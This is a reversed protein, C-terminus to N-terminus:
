TLIYLKKPLQLFFIILERGFGEFDLIKYFSIYIWATVSFTKGSCRFKETLQPNKETKWIARVQFSSLRLQLSSM